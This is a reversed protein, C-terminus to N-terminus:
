TRRCITESDTSTSRRGSALRMRSTPASTLTPAVQAQTTITFTRSTFKRDPVVASPTTPICGGLFFVTGTLKTHGAMAGPSTTSPYWGDFQTGPTGDTCPSTATFQSDLIM